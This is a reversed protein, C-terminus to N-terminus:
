MILHPQTYTTTKSAISNPWWDRLGTISRWFWSL